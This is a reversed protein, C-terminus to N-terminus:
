PPEKRYTNYVNLFSHKLLPGTWRGVDMDRVGGM